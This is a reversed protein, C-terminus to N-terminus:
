KTKIQLYDKYDAIPVTGDGIIDSIEEDTAADTKSFCENLLKESVVILTDTHVYDPLLTDGNKYVHSYSRYGTIYKGRGNCGYGNRSCGAFCMLIAALVVIITTLTQKKM